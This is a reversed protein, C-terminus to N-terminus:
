QNKVKIWLDSLKKKLVENNKFVEDKEYDTRPLYANNEYYDGDEGSLETIVEAHSSTYGVTQSNDLSADYTLIYNIFEHALAPCKANAPIVMSDVWINTGQEPLFFALDENEYLMYAADGSYVNALVFEGTIMGDIIEDQVYALNVKSDAELLWQYAAEIEGEDETNMSYGLAKLAMMFADRESDYMAISQGKYKEDHFINWGQAEVDASAIVNTDYIIGVTGWFYPISYEHNPDFSWNQVGETLNSFNTIKDLDLSQLLNEKILREIMYDSPVLVDYQSGGLLKTYMEENSGYLSYTVKVNYEKEFNRVVNEGIYEGWNYINLVDCGYKEKSDAGQKSDNCAALLVMLSCLVVKLIKKM